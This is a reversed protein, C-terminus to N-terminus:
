TFADAPASPPSAGVAHFPTWAENIFELMDQALKVSDVKNTAAYKARKASM